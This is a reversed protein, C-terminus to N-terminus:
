GGGDNEQVKQDEMKKHLEQEKALAEDLKGAEEAMNIADIEALFRAKEPDEEEVERDEIELGIEELTANLTDLYAMEDVEEGRLKEDLGSTRVRELLSKIRTEDKGKELRTLGRLYRTLGISELTLVKAERKAEAADIRLQKMEEWLVDVEMSNGDKRGRKVREIMDARKAALKKLELHKRKMDRKVGMLAVKLDKSTVQKRRNFIQEFIGGVIGLKAEPFL